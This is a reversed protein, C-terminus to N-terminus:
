APLNELKLKFCAQFKAVRGFRQSFSAFLSVTYSDMFLDFGRNKSLQEGAAELATIFAGIAAMFIIFETFEILTPKRLKTEEKWRKDRANSYISLFLLPIPL